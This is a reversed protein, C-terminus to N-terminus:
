NPRTSIVFTCTADLGIEVITPGIKTSIQRCGWAIVIVGDPVELEWFDVRKDAQLHKRVSTLPDTDRKWSVECIRSWTSYVQAQTIQPYKEALQSAILGPTSKQNTRIFELAPTPMGVDHYPVHRAQHRIAIKILHCDESWPNPKVRIDLSGECPFKDMGLTDRSKANPNKKSVKAYKAAQSCWM